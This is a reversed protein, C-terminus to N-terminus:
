KCESWLLVNLWSGACIVKKSDMRVCHHNEEAINSVRKMLFALSNFVGLEAWLWYCIPILSYIYGIERKHSPFVRYVPRVHGGLPGNIQGWNGLSCVVQMYIYGKNIKEKWIESKNRKWHKSSSGWVFILGLVIEM